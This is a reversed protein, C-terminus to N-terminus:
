IPLSLVINQVVSHGRHSGVDWATDVDFGFAM